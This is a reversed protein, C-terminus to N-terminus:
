GTNDSLERNRVDSIFCVYGLRRIYFQNVKHAYKDGKWKQKIGFFEINQTSWYWMAALALDICHVLKM